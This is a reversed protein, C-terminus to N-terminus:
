SGKRSKQNKVPVLVVRNLNNLDISDVDAFRKMKENKIYDFVKRLVAYKKPFDHYGLRIERVINTPYLTLGMNKDVRIQKIGDNTLITGTKQGLQLVEMVANLPNMELQGDVPRKTGVAAPRGNGKFRYQKNNGAIKIDSYRLGRILLLHDPDSRDKKKFLFGKDSMLYKPGLEVVAVPVHEQVSIRIKDPIERRIAAEAIWPHTLLRKRVRSLNVALINTGMKIQAHELVETASLRRNGTVFLNKASFYDSQTILDHIM